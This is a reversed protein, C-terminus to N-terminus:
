RPDREDGRGGRAGGFNNSPRNDAPALGYREKVSPPEGGRHVPVSRNDYANGGSRPPEMERKPYDAVPRKFSERKYEERKYDERKPPYEDIRKKEM